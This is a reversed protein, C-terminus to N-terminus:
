ALHGTAGGLDVLRHFRSLDFTAVVKPSTLMGFGHMGMLFDRMAAETHFFHSFIAGELGFTQTWRHWGQRIADELHGWMPYLARQSYMVYGRLSDRSTSLLYREAVAANRYVDKSKEVLGLAACGDLLREVAETNASLKTALEAATAPLSDFLGLSVATFMTQSRRFAEILDIVPEPGAASGCTTM